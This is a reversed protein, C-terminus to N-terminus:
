NKRDNRKNKNIKSLVKIRKQSNYINALILTLFLASFVIVFVVLAAETISGVNFISSLTDDFIFTFATLVSAVISITASALSNWRREYDIITANETNKREKEIDAVLLSKDKQTNLAFLYDKLQASYEQKKDTSVYVNDIIERILEECIIRISYLEDSGVKHKRATSIIIADIIEKEPLGKEAIYPKLTRIIESNATNIQELHKSNDKRRLIWMSTFFIIFGSIIGTGIGVVWQHQLFSLM